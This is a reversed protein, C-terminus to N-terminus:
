DEKLKLIGEYREGFYCLRMKIEKEDKDIEAHIYNIPKGAHHKDIITKM